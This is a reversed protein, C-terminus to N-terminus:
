YLKPSLPKNSFNEYCKERAFKGAEKAAFETNLAAIGLAIATPPAIVTPMVISIGMYGVKRVNTETTTQVRSCHTIPDLDQSKIQTEELINNLNKSTSNVESAKKGLGPMVKDLTKFIAKSGIEKGANICAEKFKLRQEKLVEKVDENFFRQSISLTSSKSKILHPNNPVMIVPPIYSSDLSSTVPVHYSNSKMTPALSLNVPLNIVDPIAIKPPLHSSGLSYNAPFHFEYNLNHSSNIRGATGLAFNTPVAFSPTNLTSSLMRDISTDLKPSSTQYINSKRNNM